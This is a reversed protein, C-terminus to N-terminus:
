VYHMLKQTTSNHVFHLFHNWVMLCKHYDAEFSLAYRLSDRLLNTLIWIM